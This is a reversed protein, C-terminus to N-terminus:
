RDGRADLPHADTAGDARGGEARADMEVPADTAPQADTAGHGADPEPEIVGGADVLTVVVITQGGVNLDQQTTTGSALVYGLPDLAEIEVTAPGTITGSLEVTFSAPLTIAGASQPTIFFSRPATRAPTITVSFSAPTLYLDGAVEVLLVSQPHHCSVTWTSLAVAAFPFLSRRHARM